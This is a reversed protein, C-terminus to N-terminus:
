RTGEGTSGAEVLLEYTDAFIDPAVIGYEGPRYQLLWDGPRGRLLDGEAGVPVAFGAELRRALVVGARRRYLGDRGAATGKAPEYHREFPGREVPWCEGRLGRVLAAGARHRVPGELTEVVGPTAAFRVQLTVPRRRARRAAPDRDLDPLSAVGAAAQEARSRNSPNM